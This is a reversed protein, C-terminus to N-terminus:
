DIACAFGSPDSWRGAECDFTQGVTWVGGPCYNCSVDLRCTSGPAPSMAPCSRANASPACELPGSTCPPLGRVFADMEADRAADRADETVDVAGDRPEVRHHEACAFTLLVCGFAWRRLAM